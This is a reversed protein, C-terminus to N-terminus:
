GQRTPDEASSMEHPARQDLSQHASQRVSWITIAARDGGIHKPKRRADQALTRQGESCANFVAEIVNLFQSSSPLPVFDIIPGNGYKKKWAAAVRPGIGDIGQEGRLTPPFVGGNVEAAMGLTRALLVLPKKPLELQMEQVTYGEPADLSFVVQRLRITARFDIAM